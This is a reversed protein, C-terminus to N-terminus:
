TDLFVIELDFNSDLYALFPLRAKLESMDQDESDDKAFVVAKFEQIKNQISAKM